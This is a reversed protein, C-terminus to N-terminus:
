ILIINWNDTIILGDAIKAVLVACGAKASVLKQFARVTSCKEIHIIQDIINEDCPKAGFRVQFFLQFQGHFPITGLDINCGHLPLLGHSVENHM